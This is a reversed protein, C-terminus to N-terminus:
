TSYQDSTSVHLIYTCNCAYKTKLIKLRPGSNLEYLSFYQLSFIACTSYRIYACNHIFFLYQKLREQYFLITINFHLNLQNFNIYYNLPLCKFSISLSKVTGEGKVGNLWSVMSNTIIMHYYYYLSENLWNQRIARIWNPNKSFM